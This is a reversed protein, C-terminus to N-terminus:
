FKLKIKDDLLNLPETNLQFASVYGKKVLNQKQNYMLKSPIDKHVSHRLVCVRQIGRDQRM